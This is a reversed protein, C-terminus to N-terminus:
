GGSNRALARKASQIAVVAAQFCETAEKAWRDGEIESMRSLASQWSGAKVGVAAIAGFAPRSPDSLTPEVEVPISYALCAETLRFSEGSYNGPPCLTFRCRMLQEVYERSAQSNLLGGGGFGNRIPGVSYGLARAARIGAQRQFNGLQGVFGLQGSKRELIRERNAELFTLLSGEQPIPPLLGEGALGQLGMEFWETYGLCLPTVTIGRRRFLRSSWRTRKRVVNGAVFARAARGLYRPPLRRLEGTLLSLRSVRSSREWTLPYTRYVHSIAPISCIAAALDRRNTEDSSVLLRVSRPPFMRLVELTEPYVDTHALLPDSETVDFDMQRLTIGVLGLERRFYSPAVPAPRTQDTELWLTPRQGNAISTSSEVGNGQM